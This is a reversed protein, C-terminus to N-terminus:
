AIFKEGIANKEIVKNLQRTFRDKNVTPVSRRVADTSEREINKAIGRVGRTIVKGLGTGVVPILGLSAIGLGAWDKNLVAQSMDKVTIADGVPTLNAADEIDFAAKVAGTALPEGTWRNVRRGNYFSPYPPEKKGGVEGGDEFTQVKWDWYGKGPNNERYSKLNRMRQKFAQKDM